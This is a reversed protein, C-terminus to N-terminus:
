SLQIVSTYTLLGTDTQPCWRYGIFMFAFLTVSLYCAFHPDLKTHGVTTYIQDSKFETSNKRQAAKRTNACDELDSLQCGKATQSKAAWDTHYFTRSVAWIKVCWSSIEPPVKFGKSVFKQLARASHLRGDILCIAFLYLLVFLVPTRYEAQPSCGRLRAALPTWLLVTRQKQIEDLERFDQLFCGRDRNWRYLSILSIVRRIGRVESCWSRTLPQDWRVARASETLLPESRWQAGVPFRGAIDTFLGSHQTARWFDQISVHPKNCVHDSLNEVKKPISDQSRDSYPNMSPTCLLSSFTGQGQSSCFIASLQALSCDAQPKTGLATNIASLWLASVLNTTSTHLSFQTQHQLIAASPCPVLNAQVFGAKSPPPNATKPFLLTMKVWSVQMWEWRIFYLSLHIWVLIENSTVAWKLDKLGRHSRLLLLSRVVRDRKPLEEDQKM